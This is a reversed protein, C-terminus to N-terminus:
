TRTREQAICWAVAAESACFKDPDGKPTYCSGPIIGSATRRYRQVGENWGAAFDRARYAGLGLLLRWNM